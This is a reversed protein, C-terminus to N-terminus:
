SRESKAKAEKALKYAAEILGIQWPDFEKRRELNSNIEWMLQRTRQWFLLDYHRYATKVAKWTPSCRGLVVAVVFAFSSVFFRHTYFYARLLITETQNPTTRRGPTKCNDPTKIQEM